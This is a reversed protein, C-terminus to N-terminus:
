KETRIRDVTDRSMNATELARSVISRTSGTDFEHLSSAAAMRVHASSDSLAVVLGNVADEVWSESRSATTARPRTTRSTARPRTAPEGATVLEPKLEPEVVRVPGQRPALRVCGVAVALLSSAGLVTLRTTRGVGSHQNRPTLVAHVRPALSSRGVLAIAAPVPRRWSVREAVSLLSAAYTSPLIDCGVALDDAAREADHDARASLWWILPNFWHVSCAVTAITKTWLDHRAIHAMEHALTTTREDDTWEIAGLPVIIAPSRLGTVFPVDIQASAMLQVRADVHLRTRIAEADDLWAPEALLTAAKRIARATTAQRVANAAVVALGLLWFVAIAAPIANPTTRASRTTTLYTPTRVATLSAPSLWPVEITVRASSVAVAAAVISAALAAVVLTHRLAARHRGVLSSGVIAVLSVATSTATALWLAETVQRALM